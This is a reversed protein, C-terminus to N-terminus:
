RIEPMPFPAPNVFRELVNRMVTSVSNCYGNHSLSGCWAISGVSFVAGGHGTEFFVMDARLNDLESGPNPLTDLVSSSTVAFMNSHGFSSALVLSHSPSGKALDHRDIEYGAAGGQLVGFDGILVGEELGNFIWAARPDEAASNRRYPACKDFGMTLFGVGVIANESRGINRWLGTPLGSTSSLAEAHNVRWLNDQGPRRVEVVHPMSEPVEAMQYFGNGGLYMLRGSERLHLDVADLFKRSMYEPHSATMLARYPRIAEIGERDVDDDTIIDIDMGTADFWDIFMLDQCFKYIRGFPRFNAVPRNMSAYIVPSGDTHTDYCSKGLEPKAMLLFDTSDLVTLRGQNLENFQANVRLHMNSYTCYTMTPLIFAAPATREGKAPRVVFPVWFEPTSGDAPAVRLGYCGSPLDVPADFTLSRDWAADALDDEHFHIAAYGSPDVTWALSDGTWRSGRTARTPLNVLRGHHARGSVDVIGQTTMGQSFDWHAILDQRATGVIRADELKGNFCTDPIHRGEHNLSAALTLSSEGFFASSPGVVTSEQRAHARLAPADVVCSTLTLAGNPPDVTVAIDAWEREVLPGVSTTTQSGSPACWMAALAEGSNTITLHAGSASSIRAITRVAAGRLTPHVRISFKFAGDLAIPGPVEAYSGILIPQHQGRHTNNISSAVPVTRFAPAIPGIDPSLLRVIEATYDKDGESSVFFDLSEGARISRASAYALVSPCREIVARRAAEPPNASSSAVAPSELQEGYIAAWRECFVHWEASEIDSFVHDWEVVPRLPLADAYKSLTWEEGPRSLFLFPKGPMPAARMTNLLEQLEATHRGFIRGRFEAALEPRPRSTV